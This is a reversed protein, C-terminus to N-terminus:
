GQKAQEAKNLEDCHLQCEELTKFLGAKDSSSVSGDKRDLYIEYKTCEGRAWIQVNIQTIKDQQPKYEYIQRAYWNSACDPCDQNFKRDGLTMVVKRANECTGCKVEGIKTSKAYYVTDGITFGGLLERHVTKTHEKLIKAQDIEHYRIKLLAQSLERNLKARDERLWNLDALKAGLEKKVEADVIKRLSIALEDQEPPYSEDEFKM